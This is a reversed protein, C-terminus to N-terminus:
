ASDGDHDVDQAAMQRGQSSITVTDPQTARSPASATAAPAPPASAQTQTAVVPSSGNLAIMM